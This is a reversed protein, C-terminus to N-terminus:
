EDAGEALMCPMARMDFLQRFVEVSLICIQGWAKGILIEISAGYIYEKFGSWHIASTCMPCSETNTYLSLDSFAAQSESATMNYPGTPETLIDSYNNIAAM